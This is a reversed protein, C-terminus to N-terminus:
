QALFESGLNLLFPSPRRVLARQRQKNPLWWVQPPVTGLERQPEGLLNERLTSLSSAPSDELKTDSAFGSSVRCFDALGRAGTAGAM